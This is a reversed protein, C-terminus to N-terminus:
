FRVKMLIQINPCSVTTYDNNNQRLYEVTVIIARIDDHVQKFWHIGAEDTDVGSCPVAMDGHSSFDVATCFTHKVYM